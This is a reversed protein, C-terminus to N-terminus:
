SAGVKVSSVCCYLVVDNRKQLGADIATNVAETEVTCLM